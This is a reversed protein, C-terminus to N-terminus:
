VVPAGLRDLEDSVEIMLILLDAFPLDTGIVARGHDLESYELSYWKVPAVGKGQWSIPQHTIANRVVRWFRLLEPWKNKNSHVNAILWDVHQEYFFIFSVGIIKALLDQLNGKVSPTNITSELFIGVSVVISNPAIGNFACEVPGILPLKVEIGPFLNCEFAVNDGINWVVTGGSRISFALAISSMEIM